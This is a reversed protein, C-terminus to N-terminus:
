YIARKISSCSRTDKFKQGEKTIKVINYDAGLNCHKLKIFLKSIIDEGICYSKFIIIDNKRCFQRFDKLSLFHLNPTDYWKHPFDKSEPLIGKIGLRIRHKWNAFNPFTVIGVRAVRLMENLVLDPKHVELLTRSLIAYDYYNDPIMGLGEDLDVQFVPVKKNTCEIINEMDIDIGHGSIRDKDLMQKLFTGDGCGLDLLKIGPKAESRITESIIGFDKLADEDSTYPRDRSVRKGSFFSSIINSLGSNEILFADHGYPVTLNCYTVERGARLMNEALAKSQEVPYLWDSSVSVILFRAKIRNYVEESSRGREKFSYSDLASTIYLFSNADFREVFSSGQYNLYSEVQFDTTFPSREINKQKERGFKEEMSEKSLYTIHGIMRALSLGKEPIRRGYYNGKNWFPDAMIINRSIINFSLAQASHSEASAICVANKIFEPYRICWELAQTGGASGGIVGHLEKIGLQDLFLKQLKVMDGITIEPFKPGYPKGTKPNRSCPGTTGKCGGLIKTCIVQFKDTDIGKGPGIMTEWWGPKKDKKSHYGAAHADGSLAHCILITNSSDKLSKGYREFAVEIEPLSHGHELQFGKKPLILKIKETKTIGISNKKM